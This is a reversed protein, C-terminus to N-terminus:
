KSLGSEKKKLTLLCPGHKMAMSSSLFTVFSRVVQKRVHQEALDQKIKARATRASTIRIRIQALCTVERCLTARLYKFRTAKELRQGTM